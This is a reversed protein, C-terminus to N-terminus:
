LMTEKIYNALDAIAIMLDPIQKENFSIGEKTFMYKNTQPVWYAKRFHLYKKGNFEDIYVRIITNEDISIDGFSKM